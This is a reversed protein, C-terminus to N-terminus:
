MDAKGTTLLPCLAAYSWSVRRTAVLTRGVASHTISNAPLSPEKSSLKVVCRAWVVRCVKSLPVITWPEYSKGSGQSETVHSLTTFMPVLQEERQFWLSMLPFQNELFLRILSLVREADGAGRGRRGRLSKRTFVNPQLLTIGRALRGM